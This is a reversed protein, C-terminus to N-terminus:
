GLLQLLREVALDVNGNVQKLVQFNLDENLFGMDKLKQNQEQYAEKPDVNTNTTNTTTQTNM